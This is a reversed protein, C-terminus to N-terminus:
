SVRARGHDRPRRGPQPVGGPHDQRIEARAVPHGARDARHRHRQGGRGGARHRIGRRRDAGSRHPARARRLRQPLKLDVAAKRIADTAAKGPELATFDLKPPHRHVQAQQQGSRGAEGSRATGALLLEGAQRGAGGRRHRRHGDAAAAHRRAHDEGARRRDPGDAASRGPRAPESRDGAARDAARGATLQSPTKEAEEVPLFLLATAASSNAAARNRSTSSRAGQQATLREVLATTAQSALEPTPADVVALISHLHQPFAKEFALNRAAAVASRAFDAQQHRYQHRFARAAYVGSLSRWAAISLVIVLWAHRTCRTVIAVIAARLMGKIIERKKSFRAPHPLTPGAHVM